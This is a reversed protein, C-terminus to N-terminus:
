VWGASGGPARFRAVVDLRLGLRRRGESRLASCRRRRSWAVGGCRLEPWAAWSSRRSTWFWEPGGSRLNPGLLPQIEVSVRWRHSVGGPRNRAALKRRTESVGGRTEGCSDSAARPSGPTGLVGVAGGGRAGGTCRREDGVGDVRCAKVARNSGLHAGCRGAKGKQVWPKACVRGSRM